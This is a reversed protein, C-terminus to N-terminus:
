RAVNIFISRIGKLQM